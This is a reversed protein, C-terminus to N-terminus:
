RSSARGPAHGEARALKVLEGTDMFAHLTKLPMQFLHRGAFLLMFFNITAAIVQLPPLVYAELLQMGTTQFWGIDKKVQGIM